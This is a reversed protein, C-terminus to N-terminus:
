RVLLWAQGSGERRVAALAELAENRDAYSGYAVPHLEGYRELRSAAYGKDQLEKLLRDANEPQAFCGGVVHYRARLLSRSATVVATTDAPAAGLDM